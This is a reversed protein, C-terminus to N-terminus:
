FMLTAFTTFTKIIGFDKAFFYPWQTCRDGDQPEQTVGTDAIAQLKMGDRVDVKM